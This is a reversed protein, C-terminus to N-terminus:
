NNDIHLNNDDMDNDSSVSKVYNPLFGSLNTNWLKYGESNLIYENNINETGEFYKLNLERMVESMSNIEEISYLGYEALNFYAMDEAKDAFAKKSYEKFKILNSDTVSKEKSWEEVNVWETKYDFSKDEQNYKLVGYKQPYVSLAGTTVDYITKNDESSNYSSIDQIHIHGSLVLQLNNNLFEKIAKENDNLTYGENIVDSHDVLNHHMVTVIKANKERALESCKQIWEYTEDTIRGDVQLKKTSENNKYQCTDLMLLWVDESAAALYSLTNKDRSVAEKYGYEYYIKSFDKDNIYETKLQTDDKFERAWPNLIDHNGPIVYVSTGSEEVKKLKEALDEHSKKEGNNTLDGSIILVEPRKKIIDNIFADTIEDIYRLEKGDGTNIFRDFAEGKDTLDESLYHIDTAIFFTIDEGSKINTAIQDLNFMDENPTNDFNSCGIFVSVVIMLVLLLGGKKNIM